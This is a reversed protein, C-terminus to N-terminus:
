SELIGKIDRMSQQVQQSDMGKNRLIAEIKKLKTLEIVVPANKTNNEVNQVLIEGLPDHPTEKKDNMNVSPIPEAIDKTSKKNATITNNQKDQGVPPFKLNM